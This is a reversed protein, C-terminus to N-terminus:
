LKLYSLLVHSFQPLLMKNYGDNYGKIYATKILSMVWTYDHEDLM